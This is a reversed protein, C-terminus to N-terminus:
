HCNASLLPSDPVGSLVRSIAASLTQANIPKSIYGDMGSALCREQDGKMAHATLAIIPLHGGHQREQERIVATAELGDMDPMQVDMLVLDVPEQALTALVEQGTSAVIMTHGYKELLHVVLRQNVVNDEALLIRLRRQPITAFSHQVSQVDNRRFMQEAQVEQIGTRGLATIMAEWLETRTIPKRLYCTVGTQRCRAEINGPDDSSLMLITVGTLCHNYTIREAVAFGDMDPMQADLLVLPFRQGEGRVHELIHLAAEGSEVVTPRMGWHTLMDHLIRRNTANDDVVLVPLDRINMSDAGPLPTLVSTQVAFRATFHFTSGQGVVSEVWLQGGMLQALHSAIALGLGTGGHKRTTSGDAQTFPEFILRHKEEPIGMGTDRVSMHLVMAKGEDVDVGADQREAEQHRRVEVVVEGHDTFKIANGVLNVIIQRLRGPDGV